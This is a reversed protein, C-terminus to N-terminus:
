CHEVEPLNYMSKSEVKKEQKPPGVFQLPEEKLKLLDSSKKIEALEIKKSKERAYKECAALTPYDLAHFLIDVDDSNEDVMLADPCRDDILEMVHELCKRDLKRMFKILLNIAQEQNQARIMQVHLNQWKKFCNQAVKFHKARETYLRQVNQFVTYVDAHLEKASAYCGGQYKRMITEFDIEKLKTSIRDFNLRHFGRCEPHLYLTKHFLEYTCQLSYDPYKGGYISM